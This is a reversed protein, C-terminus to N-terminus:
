YDAYFSDHQYKSEERMKGYASVFHRSSRFNKRIFRSLKKISTYQQLSGEREMISLARRKKRLDGSPTHTAKAKRYALNREHNELPWYSNKM